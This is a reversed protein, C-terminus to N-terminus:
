SYVANTARVEGFLDKSVLFGALHLYQQCTNFGVSTDASGKQRQDRAAAGKREQAQSLLLQYCPDSLSHCNQGWDFRTIAGRSVLISVTSPARPLQVM